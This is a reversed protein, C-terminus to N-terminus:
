KRFIRKSTIGEGVEDLGSEKVADSCNQTHTHLRYRSSAHQLAKERRKRSNNM